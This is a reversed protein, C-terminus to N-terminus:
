RHPRCRHAPPAPRAPAWGRRVVEGDGEGAPPAEGRRADHEGGAEAIGLQRREEAEGRRDARLAALDQDGLARRATSGMGTVVM